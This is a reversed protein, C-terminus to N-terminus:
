SGKKGRTNICGIADGSRFSGLVTDVDADYTMLEISTSSRGRRRRDGLLGIKLRIGPPRNQPEDKPLYPPIDVPIWETISKAVVSNYAATSSDYSTSSDGSTSDYVTSTSATTAFANIPVDLPPTDWTNFLLVSRRYITTEDSVEGEQRRIRTWLEHNTGGLESDIYALPPRPVAHIVDGKFRLLRNSVAPVTILVSYNNLLLVTPGQVDSGIQLYLVHGHTPYRLEGGQRALLEDVDAHADLNIWEDRWWYEVYSSTDNLQILTSHILSEISNNNTYTNTARNIVRHSLGASQASKDIKALFLPDVINNWVKFGYAKISNRRIRNISQYNHRKFSQVCSSLLLSIFILIM